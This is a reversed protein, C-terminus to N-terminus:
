CLAEALGLRNVLSETSTLCGDYNRFLAETSKSPVHYNSSLVEFFNMVQM